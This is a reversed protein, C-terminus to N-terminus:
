VRGVDYPCIEVIDVGITYKKPWFFIRAVTLAIADRAYSVTFPPHYVAELAEALFIRAVTLAISARAYLVTLPPCHGTELAEALFFRAVTLAISARAYLVTLAAHHPV